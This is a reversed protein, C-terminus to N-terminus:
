INIDEFNKAIEIIVRKITEFARLRDDKMSYRPMKLSRRVRDFLLNMKENYESSSKSINEIIGESM